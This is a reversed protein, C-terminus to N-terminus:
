GGEYHIKTRRGTTRSEMYSEDSDLVIRNGGKNMKHVSGLVKQVDACTIRMVVAEGDDTYGAVKREGHNKIPSGNAAVFGIGKKSHATEMMSFAKAVSKPGVTDIAGSDIQVRIREWGPSLQNVERPEGGRDISDVSGPHLGPPQLLPRKRRSRAVKWSCGRTCLEGCM